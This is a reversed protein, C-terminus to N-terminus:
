GAPPGATGISVVLMQEEGTAWNVGYPQLTANLFALWAPNNYTTV